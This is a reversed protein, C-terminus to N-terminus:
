SINPLSEINSNDASDHKEEKEEVKNQLNGKNEMDRIVDYTLLFSLAFTMLDSVSQSVQVGKFGWYKSLILIAPIYFLGKAALALITARVASGITQLTINGLFIWSYLPFSMAQFRLAPVGAKLVAPDGKRFFSIIEPAFIIGLTSITLTLVIKFKLSFWFARQVRDYRKAGYNIGCLPHYAHGIGAMLSFAAAFSRGVISMAAIAADGYPAAAKNMIVIAFGNLAQRVLSPLGGGTIEKYLEFSPIFNKFNISINDEQTTTWILTFFSVIQSIMTALGAGAVGMNFTFILIPDLVVNLLAGAILALMSYFVSGQGRLQANLTFASAMFPSALLLYTIYTEAHQAITPTAGLMIVLDKKFIFGLIALLVALFFSTFLGVSAMREAEKVEKAGIKRSIYNGSGQGFFFGIAQIATMYSFVVGVGATAETSIKGIFYTDAMNYLASVLMIASSPLALKIILSEISGETMIAIKDKKNKESM